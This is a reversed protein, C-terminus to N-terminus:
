AKGAANEKEVSDYGEIFDLYQQCGFALNGVASQKLPINSEAAERGARWAISREPHQARDPYM